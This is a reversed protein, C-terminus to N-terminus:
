KKEDYEFFESKNFKYIHGDECGVFLFTDNGKHIVEPSCCHSGFSVPEKLQKHILYRPPLLIFDSETGVNKMVAISAHPFQYKDKNGPIQDFDHGRPFGIIVDPIETNTWYTICFKDRGQGGGFRKTFTIPTGANTPVLKKNSVEFDGVKVYSCMVANEDLCYYKVTGNKDRFATPKVRWVTKLPKNKTKDIIKVLPSFKPINPTGKNLSIWHDGNIDSTIMDLLGDNNWDFLTCQTYGWGIESPGQISGEPYPCLIRPINDISGKPIFKTLDSNSSQYYHFVGAGTGCILDYIDNKSKRLMGMAPVNLIDAKLPPQLQMLPLPDDFKPIGDSTQEGKNELYYIHGNESSIILDPRNDLNLDATEVYNIVGPMKKITVGPKFKPIGNPDTGNRRFYMIDHIFNGTVLDESRSGAFDALTPSCFGYQDIAEIPVADAFTYLSPDEKSEGLNKVIYVRGHLRGGRWKGKEDFPRYSKDGWKCNDPYYESWDNDGLIIDPLGDHDYDHIIIKSAKISGANTQSLGIGFKESLQEIECYKEVIKTGESQQIRQFIKLFGSSYAIGLDPRGYYPYISDMDLHIPADYVPPKNEDAQKWLYSGGMLYHSVTFTVLDNRHSNISDKAQSIMVRPSLGASLHYIPLDIQLRRPIYFDNYLNAM